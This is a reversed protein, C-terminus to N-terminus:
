TGKRSEQVASEIDTGQKTEEDSDDKSADSVWPGAKSKGYLGVGPVLVPNDPRCIDAMVMNFGAKQRSWEDHSYQQVYEVDRRPVVEVMEDRLKLWKGLDSGLRQQLLKYKHKTDVEAHKWQRLLELVKADNLWHLIEQASVANPGNVLEQLFIPAFPLAAHTGIKSLDSATANTLGGSSTGISSM